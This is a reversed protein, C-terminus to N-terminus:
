LSREERLAAHVAEREATDDDRAPLEIGGAPDLARAAAAFGWFRELGAAVAEPGYGRSAFEDLLSGKSAGEAAYQSALQQALRVGAETGLPERAAAREREREPPQSWEIHRGKQIHAVLVAVPDRVGPLKRAMAWANEVGAPYRGWADAVSRRREDSTFAIGKRRCFEAFGQLGNGAAHPPQPPVNKFGTGVPVPPSGGTNLGTGPRAACPDGGAFEERPAVGRHEHPNAAEQPEVRPAVGRHEHPNAAGAGGPLVLLYENIGQGLSPPVRVTATTEVFGRLALSRLAGKAATRGIGSAAALWAVKRGAVRCDAGCASVLAALMARESDRLAPIAAVAEPLAARELEGPTM